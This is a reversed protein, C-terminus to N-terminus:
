NDFEYYPGLAMIINRIIIHKCYVRKQEETYEIDCGINDDFSLNSAHEQSDGRLLYEQYRENISDHYFEEEFMSDTEEFELIIKIEEETLLNADEKNM